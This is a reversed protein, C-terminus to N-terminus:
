QKILIMNAPIKFESNDPPTGDDCFINEYYTTDTTRSWQLQNTTSGVLQIELQATKRRHCGTFYPETYTVSIENNVVLNSSLRSPQTNAETLLSANNINDYIYNGDKKYQYKIFLADIYVNYNESFLIKNKTINLKVYDSGNNFIWTGVCNQLKGNTDKFYTNQNTARDTTLLAEIPKITEQAFLNSVLLIM